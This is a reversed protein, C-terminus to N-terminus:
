PQAVPVPRGYAIDDIYILGTAGSAPKAKDGVGITMKRISNTKVGGSAFSSLPISWPTWAGAAAAYPDTNVVTAKRGGSDELTLYLADPVNGAPQEIGLSTSQWQGTVNGTTAVNSFEAQTVSAAAHSTVALGIYVNAGMSITQPNWVMPKWVKGAADTAYYGLFQDGKREIKIWAPIRVAKQEDTSVSTDSTAGGGLTLRAQYRAGNTQAYAVMAWASTADLTSRIMVAAKAWADTNDLRDVRAIITGDGTLQKYVFRGQDTTGFIDTGIGNMLIHSSSLELFGVPSGRFYLRLTDAANTTWNQATPWTRQAESTALSTNDYYLPMSQKGSNVITTESITKGYQPGGATWIDHGVASGTGNGPNGTPFFEDESFGYGDIWVQFLRNPSENTYSEFNDIALFETTSFSWLDSEWTKPSAADNIEVVKWYYTTGFELSSPAYRAQTLTVASVTGDVVAQQDTGLYLQHSVAERGARWSLTVGPNVGTAGSAPVPERPHAPTYLFRVESLGFQQSTGWGSKATLRVYKAAVGAFDITTNHEYGDAAPAKAFEFDGLSTWDTGNVSYEVAVDKFGFSLISEFFTNYNWVWMERLKYVRDFEYQIWAPLTGGKATLWAAADALSHRDNEDLGSRNITNEPAYTMHVSSASAIIGKMVYTVPEATFSWLDGKHVTVGDAEWGDVRWYYTQGFVLLGSPDFAAETQAKGALVGRPNTRTANNVDDLATGFYVDQATISEGTTWSLVVDRPVDEQENSPSPASATGADLRVGTMYAVANIFMKAGDPKLDFYGATESNVGNTERSGTLFVLRRGGLVDTGAGGAHTVTVGAPWEAILMSGATVSGSAQALTALVKGNANAAETVVSIGRMLANTTPHNMVGAYANTMTNGTLPIGAFIPHAPDNVTLKIDATIDPITNGTSFGMRNQRIVYGGLIMMPATIRNWSTAAADQFSGSAVSRSVIVLDAANLLAADPSATQVYRTVTFGNAQLLDTYGKDTATTFGAGAAGSGPTNDASHFSVWVINVASAPLSLCFGLALVVFAVKKCM